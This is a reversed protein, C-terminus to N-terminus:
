PQRQANHRWEGYEVPILSTNPTMPTFRFRQLLTAAMLSVSMQSPASRLLTLRKDPPLPLAQPALRCAAPKKGLSRAPVVGVCQACTAKCCGGLM